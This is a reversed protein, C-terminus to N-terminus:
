RRAKPLLMFRNVRSKHEMRKIQDKLADIQEALYVASSPEFDALESFFELNGSEIMQMTTELEDFCWGRWLDAAPIDDIWRRVCTVLEGLAKAHLDSM